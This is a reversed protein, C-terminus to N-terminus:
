NAALSSTDFESVLHIPESPWRNAPTSRMGQGAARSGYSHRDVRRPPESRLPISRTRFRTGTPRNTLRVGHSASGMGESGSYGTHEGTERKSVMGSRMATWFLPYRSSGLFTQHPQDGTVRFHTGPCSWM